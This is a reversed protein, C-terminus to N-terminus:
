KIYAKGTGDVLKFDDFIVAAGPKKCVMAIPNVVTEKELTFTYTVLVWEGTTLDNVYDGYIYDSPSAIKGDTVIAYGARVSGGTATAAKVYFTETYEGAPLTLERYSLRNNGSTSGAVQAAYSGSHADTVMTIAGKTASTTSKWNTPVGDTWNEFGGNSADVDPNTVDGGGPNEEGGGPNEGSGTGAKGAKVSFNKVEWTSGSEANTNYRLAVRVVKGMYEAPIQIDATSFTSWDTGEKHEGNLVVWGEAPKTSDFNTNILLQQNEQGRDYRLIYEYAVHAETEKTLDIKPSVLYYTGATTVKSANDYGTAKATKFDIVWAGAGSTTYNTFGGLTETFAESYPLTKTEDPDTGPQQETYDGNGKAMIFNKVEWTASKSVAIYRLAVRVGSQGLYEAPVSVKGSNYWTEWDTGQVQNYSLATWTAAAVDNGNCDKSILLQYNDKLEGSNAYRLIYDFSIYASDVDTLDVPASVLWSVAPNNEKVDDGNTDVFSTVQACSYDCKWSFNGQTNIASFKGLTSAFTENIFVDSVVTSDGGGPQDDIDFPNDVDDCAAFGLAVVAAALFSYIKNM